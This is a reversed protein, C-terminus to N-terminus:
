GHFYEGEEIQLFLFASDFLAFNKLVFYEGEEIQLLLFASSLM